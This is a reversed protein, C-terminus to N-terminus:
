PSVQPAQSCFVHITVNFETNLADLFYLWCQFSLGIAQLRLVRTLILGTKSRSPVRTQPYRQGSSKEPSLYDGLAGGHGM